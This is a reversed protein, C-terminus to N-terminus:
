RMDPGHDARGGPLAVTMLIQAHRGGAKRGSPRPRPANMGDENFRRKM